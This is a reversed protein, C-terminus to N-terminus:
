APTSSACKPTLFPPTLTPKSAPCFATATPIWLSIMETTKVRPLIGSLAIPLAPWNAYGAAILGPLFPYGIEMVPSLEQYPGNDALL